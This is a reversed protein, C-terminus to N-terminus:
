IEKLMLPILEILVQQALLELSEKTLGLINDGWDDTLDDKGKIPDSSMEFFDDTLSGISVTHSEYYKGTDKLNISSKDKKPRGDDKAKELTFASYDGGIASLKIGESDINLKFLQEETNLNIIFDQIEPRSLITNVLVHQDIKKIRQGKEKLADFM